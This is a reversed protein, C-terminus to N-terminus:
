YSSFENKSIYHVIFWFIKVTASIDLLFYSSDYLLAKGVIGLLVFCPMSFLYEFESRTSKHHIYLSFVYWIIALYRL